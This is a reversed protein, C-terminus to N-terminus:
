RGLRLRLGVMASLVREDLEGDADDLATGKLWTWGIDGYIAIRPAAWFEAGGGFQWGWGATELSFTQTGGEIVTESEDEGVITVDEITQNTGSTARHYNTGAKGYFRMRRVPIGVIGSINFIQPDFFSNFRFAGGNGEVTWESPKVFTFEAGLYRTFWYAAGAAFGWGSPDGGCDSVTGCALRVASRVETLGGGGFVILGAPSPTWATEPTLSVPGQRLLVTPNPGAANVVLTTVRRVLFLGLIQRRECGAESPMPQVAREVILIRQRDKCTDVYLYADRESTGPAAFMNATLRADGAADATASGATETNVVLEITSGPPVGRVVVTQANATGAIVASLAAAVM